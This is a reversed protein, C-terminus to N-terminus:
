RPRLNSCTAAHPKRSRWQAQMTALVHLGSSQTYLATQRVVGLECSVSFHQMRPQLGAKCTKHLLHMGELAQYGPSAVNTTVCVNTTICCKRHHLDHQVEQPAIHQTRAAEGETCNAALGPRCHQYGDDPDDHRAESGVQHQSLENLLSGRHGCDDQLDNRGHTEEPTLM